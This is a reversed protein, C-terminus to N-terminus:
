LSSQEKLESNWDDSLLAKSWKM